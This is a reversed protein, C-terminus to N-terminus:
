TEEPDRRGKPARLRRLVAKQEASAVSRAATLHRPREYDDFDTITRDVERAFDESSAGDAVCRFYAPLAARWDVGVQWSGAEDAFFVVDDADTDIRRLLDLLLEFADRVPARPGKGAARVCRNLLRNFEAIFQETGDSKEMYNKSNVAFSDYYEGRLTAEHFKRVEELLPAAGRKEEGLEELRILDGVLAGLKAAPVLEAAREAIELLDGRSLRRLAAHLKETDVRRRTM